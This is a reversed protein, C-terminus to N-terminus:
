KLKLSTLLKSHSFKVLKNMGIPTIALPSGVFSFQFTCLFTPHVLLNDLLCILPVIRVIFLLRKTSVYEEGIPEILGGGIRRM